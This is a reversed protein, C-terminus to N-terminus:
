IFCFGKQGVDDLRLTRSLWISLSKNLYITADRSSYTIRAHNFIHELSWSQREECHCICCCWGSRSWCRVLGWTHDYGNININYIICDYIWILWIFWKGIFYYYYQLLSLSISLSLSLSPPLPISLPLPVHKSINYMKIREGWLSLYLLVM